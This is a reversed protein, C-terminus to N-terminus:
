KLGLAKRMDSALMAKPYVPAGQDFRKATSLGGVVVPEYGADTVLRKVVTLAEPDDAALEIGYLEGPHHGDQALATYTISNFARVLRTGPLYSPDMVGTGKAIADKAMHGDRGLYPNCTDIVIKGKLQTAYDHGIQPLAAYPVTVVVVDGWDAAQQPTGVHANPGLQAALEKVPGLDRASLMLQYGAETWIKALTGGIHGAGIFGIKPKSSQALSASPMGLNAIMAGILLRRSLTAKIEYIM